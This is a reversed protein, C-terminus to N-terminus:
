PREVVLDRERIAALVRPLTDVILSGGESDLKGEHMLLIAGPRIGAELRRVIEDRDTSVGDRGRASWGVLRLGLRDLLPHVFLNRMGAPARFLTPETGLVERIAAQAGSIEKIVRQRDARWFSYQPHTLTHNEVGHGAERMAEILEPWRSAKEGIVFFTATAGYSSLIELIAPTDEPDPGDDITLWVRDGSVRTQVPGWWQCNPVLTAVLTLMHVVFLLLLGPWFYGGYWLGVFIIPTVINSGILFRRTM